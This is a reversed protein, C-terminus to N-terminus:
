LMFVSLKLSLILQEFMCNLRERLHALMDKREGRGGCEGEKKALHRQQNPFM